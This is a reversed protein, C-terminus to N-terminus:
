STRAVPDAPRRSRGGVILLGVTFVLIVLQFILALANQLGSELGAYAVSVGIGASLLGALGLLAALWSPVLRSVVAAAAILLLTLGLLIRFYGQLGWEIWRVTEADAYRAAEEAVAASSWAEVSQKLTVGDVGQLVAWTAATAIIAGGGLLSLAPAERHLARCLVLLGALAVLVLVFEAIHTAVWVDSTAYEGFIEHHDDEEGSPHLLM